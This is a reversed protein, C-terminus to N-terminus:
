FFCQSCWNALVHINLFCIVIIKTKWCPFIKPKVARATVAMRLRLPGSTVLPLWSREKLVFTFFGVAPCRLLRKKGTTLWLQVTQQLYHAINGGHTSQVAQRVSHLMDYRHIRWSACALDERTLKGGGNICNTSPLELKIHSYQTLRITPFTVTVEIHRAINKAIDPLLPLQQCKAIANPRREPANSDNWKPGAPM